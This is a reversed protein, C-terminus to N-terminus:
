KNFQDPLLLTQTCESGSAKVSQGECASSAAAVAASTFSKSRDFSSRKLTRSLFFRAMDTCCLMAQHWFAPMM